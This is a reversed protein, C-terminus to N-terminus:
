YIKGTQIDSRDKFCQKVFMKKLQHFWQVYVYVLFYKGTQINQQDKFCQKAFMITLTKLGNPM